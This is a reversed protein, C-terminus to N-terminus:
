WRASRAPIGESFDMRPLPRPTVLLHAVLQGAGRRASEDGVIVLHGAAWCGAM